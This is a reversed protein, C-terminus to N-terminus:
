SLFRKTKKLDFTSIELCNIQCSGHKPFNGVSVSNGSWYVATLFFKSRVTLLVPRGQHIFVQTKGSLFQRCEPFDEIWLSNSEPVDFSPTFSSSREFHFHVTSYLWKTSKGIDPGFREIRAWGIKTLPDRTPPILSYPISLHDSWPM